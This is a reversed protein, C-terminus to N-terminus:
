NCVGMKLNGFEWIELNAETVRVPKGFKWIKLNAKTVRVRM